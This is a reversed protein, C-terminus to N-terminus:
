GSGSCHEGCDECRSTGLDRLASALDPVERSAGLNVATLRRPQQRPPRSSSRRRALTASHRARESEPLLVHAVESLGIAASSGGSRAALAVGVLRGAREQILEIPVELDVGRRGDVVRTEVEWIWESAQFDSMLVYVGELDEPAEVEGRLRVKGDVIVEGDTPSHLAPRPSPQPLAEFAIANGLQAVGGPLRWFPRLTLNETITLRGSYHGRRRRRLPVEDYAGIGFSEMPCAAVRLEFVVGGGEPLRFASRGPRFRGLAGGNADFLQVAEVEVPAEPYSRYKWAPSRRRQTELRVSLTELPPEVPAFYRRPALRELPVRRQQGLEELVLSAAGAPDEDLTLEVGRFATAPSPADSSFSEGFVWPDQPSVVLIETTDPPPLLVLGRWFRDLAEWPTVGAFFYFVALLPAGIVGGAMALFPGQPLKAKPPEDGSAPAWAYDLRMEAYRRASAADGGVLDRSLWADLDAVNQPYLEGLNRRVLWELRPRSRFWSWAGLCAATIAAATTWCYLIALFGGQNDTFVISYLLAAGLIGQFFAALCLVDYQIALRRRLQERIRRATGNHRRLTALWDDPRERGDSGDGQRCVSAFKM